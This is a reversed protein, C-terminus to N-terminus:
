DPLEERHAVPDFGPPPTAAPVDTTMDEFELREGMLGKDLKRYARIAEDLANWGLLACKIRVPLRAVGQLARLDGLERDRAAEEDGHMLDLF